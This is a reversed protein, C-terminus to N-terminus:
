SGLVLLLDGTAVVDGIGVHLATVVGAHPSKVPIEMKMSELSLLEQGASVSVGVAVSITWVKGVMEARIEM